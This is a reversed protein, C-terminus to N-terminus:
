LGGERLIDAAKDISPQDPNDPDLKLIKVM